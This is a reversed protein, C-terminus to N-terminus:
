IREAVVWWLSPRPAAAAGAWRTLEGGPVPRPADVLWPGLRNKCLFGSVLAIGLLDRTGLSQYGFVGLNPVSSFAPWRSGARGDPCPWRGAPNRAPLRPSKPRFFSRGVISWCVGAFWFFVLSDWLADSWLCVIVFVLLQGMGLPPGARALTFYSGNGKHLLQDAGARLREYSPSDRGRNEFFFPGVV